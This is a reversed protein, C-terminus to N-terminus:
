EPRYTELKATIPDIQITYFNAPLTTPNVAPYELLTLHWAQAEALDTSGDPRFRIAVYERTGEQTEEEHSPLNWLSSFEAHTSIGVGTPLPERDGMPVLRSLPAAAKKPDVDNEVLQFTQLSQGSSGDGSDQAPSKYVRLEVDSSFTLALGQAEVLKGTILDGASTLRSAQIARLMAPLALSVILILIGMVLVAELLTFAAARHLPRTLKM